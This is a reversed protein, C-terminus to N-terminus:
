ILKFNWLQTFIIKIEPYKEKIMEALMKSVRMNVDKEKAKRGLAGPDVGGHGPDIVVTFPKKGSKKQASMSYPVASLLLTLLIICIHLLKRKM